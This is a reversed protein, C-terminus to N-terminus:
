MIIEHQFMSWFSPLIRFLLLSCIVTFCDFVVNLKLLLSSILMLLLLPLVAAAATTAAAIFAIVTAFIFSMM